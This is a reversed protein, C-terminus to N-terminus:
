AEKIKAIAEENTVFLVQCDITEDFSEYIYGASHSGRAVTVVSNAVYGYTEGSQGVVKIAEDDYINNHDKQLTLVKGPTISSIGMYRDCGTITIYTNTNSKM